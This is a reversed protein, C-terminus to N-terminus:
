LHQHCIYCSYYNVIGTILTAIMAPIFGAHLFLLPLILITGGIMANMLAVVTLPATTSM